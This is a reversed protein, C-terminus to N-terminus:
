TANEVPVYKSNVRIVSLAHIPGAGLVSLVLDRLAELKAGDEIKDPLVWRSTRGTLHVRFLGTSPEDTYIDVALKTAGDEFWAFWGWDEQNSEYPAYRAKLTPELLDLVVDGGICCDNIYKDNDTIPLDLTFTLEYPMQLKVFSLFM